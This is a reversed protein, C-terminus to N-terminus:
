DFMLTLQLGIDLGMKQHRFASLKSAKRRDRRRGWIHALHPSLRPAGEEPMAAPNWALPEQLDRCSDKLNRVKAGCLLLGSWNGKSARELWQLDAQSAQGARGM